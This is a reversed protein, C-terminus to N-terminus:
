KVCPKNPSGQKGLHSNQPRRPPELAYRRAAANLRAKGALQPRNPCPSYALSKLRPLHPSIFDSAKKTQSTASILITCDFNM